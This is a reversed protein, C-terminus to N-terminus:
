GGNLTTWQSPVTLSLPFCTEIQATGRANAPTYLGPQGTPGESAVGLHLGWPTYTPWSEMWVVLVKFSGRMFFPLKNWGVTETTQDTLTQRWQKPSAVCWPPLRHYLLAASRLVPFCLLFFLFPSHGATEKSPTGGSFEERWAERRSTEVSGLPAKSPM